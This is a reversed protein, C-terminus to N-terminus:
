PSAVCRMKCYPDCFMFGPQGTVTTCPEGTGDPCNLPDRCDGVAQEVQAEESTAAAQEEETPMPGCGVVMFGTLVLLASLRLM